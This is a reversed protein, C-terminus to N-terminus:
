WCFTVLIKKRTRLYICFNNIYVLFIGLFAKFVYSKSNVRLFQYLYRNISFPCVRKVAGICKFLKKVSVCNSSMKLM